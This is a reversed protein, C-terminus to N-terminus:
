RLKEILRVTHTLGSENLPKLLLNGHQLALELVLFRLIEAAVKWAGCTDRLLLSENV